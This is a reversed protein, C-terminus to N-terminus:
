PVAPIPARCGIAPSAAYPRLHGRFSGDLAADLISYTPYTLQWENGGIPRRLQAVLQNPPPCCALYADYWGLEAILTAGPLLAGADSIM